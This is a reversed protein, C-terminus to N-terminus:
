ALSPALETRTAAPRRWFVLCVPITWVLMGLYALMLPFVFPGGDVERGAVSAVGVVLLPVAALALVGTWRPFVRTARIGMGAGLMFIALPIGQVFGVLDGSYVAWLGDGTLGHGVARVFIISFVNGLLGVATSATIGALAVIWWGGGSDSRRLRDAVAVGFLLWAGGMLLGLYDAILLMQKDDAAAQAIDAIPEDAAPLAPFFMMLAILLAVAVVGAVAGLRDLSHASSDPM